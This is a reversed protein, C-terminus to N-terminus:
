IWANPSLSLNDCVATKFAETRIILSSVTNVTLSRRHKDCPNTWKKQVRSARSYYDACSEIVDTNKPCNYDVSGTCICLIFKPSHGCGIPQWMRIQLLWYSHVIKRSEDVTWLRQIRAVATVTEGKEIQHLGCFISFHFRYQFRLFEGVAFDLM